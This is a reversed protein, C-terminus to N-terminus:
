SFSKSLQKSIEFFLQLKSPTLFEKIISSLMTSVSGKGKSGAIHVSNFSDQPNDFRECLFKITDLWFINKKPMKEFNLFSDLWENFYELSSKEKTNM